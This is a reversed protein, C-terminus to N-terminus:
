EVHLIVLFRHHFICTASPFLLGQQGGPFVGCDGHADMAIRADAWCQFAMISGDALQTRSCLCWEGAVLREVTFTHLPTYLHTPSPGTQASLPTVAHATTGLLCRSLHCGASYLTAPINQLCNRQGKVTETAHKEPLRLPPNGAMLM